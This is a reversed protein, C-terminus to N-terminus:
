TCSTLQVHGHVGSAELDRSSAESARNETAGKLSRVDVLRLTYCQVLQSKSASTQKEGHQWPYKGSFIFSSCFISIFVHIDARFLTLSCASSM